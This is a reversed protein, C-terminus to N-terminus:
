GGKVTEDVRVSAEAEVETIETERYRAMSSTSSPAAWSGTAQGSRGTPWTARPGASCWGSPWRV